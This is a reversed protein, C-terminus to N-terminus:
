DNRIILYVILGMVPFVLIALLILVAFEASKGRRKCDRYAWICSVIHLIFLAFSILAVIGITVLAM